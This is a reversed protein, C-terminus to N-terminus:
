GRAHPFRYRNVDGPRSGGRYQLHLFGSEILLALARRYRDPSRRWGPIVGAAAMAKPSVAFVEHDWHARRLTLLLLAMDSGRPYTILKAIEDATLYVRGTRGVWNRDEVEYRWASRATKLVEADPLPPVCDGNITFAVDRIADFDDCHPANRLLLRFLTPNRRGEEIVRLRTLETAATLTKPLSGPRLVPLRSLDEWSGMILEYHRGAFEDSPRVSPPAAVYGGLGKIDVFQAPRLTTCEEGSARYYLHYGGSPTRVQLPTPGFREVMQSVLMPNDSDLDVVVVEKGTVIGINASPWRDSWRRLTEIRPRHKWQNFGRVKPPKGDGEGTLPIPMLGARWLMEASKAFPGDHTGPRPSDGQRETCCNAIFPAGFEVEGGAATAAAAPSRKM